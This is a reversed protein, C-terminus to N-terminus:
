CRGPKSRSHKHGWEGRQARRDGGFAAARAATLAKGFVKPAKGVARAARTPAVRREAAPVATLEVQPLLSEHSPAVVPARRRNM